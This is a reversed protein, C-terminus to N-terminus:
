RQERSPQGFSLQGRQQDLKARLHTVEKILVEREDLARQLM